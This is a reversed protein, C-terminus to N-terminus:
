NPTVFYGMGFVFGVITMVVAAIVDGLIIGLFFPRYQRYLKLGGAKVILGKLVWGIFFSFGFQNSTWSYMPVLGIPHLPWNVFRLRLFMLGFFMGAGLAAGVLNFMSPRQGPDLRAAAERWIRMAHGLFTGPALQAGGRDYVLRLWAVTALGAALVIAVAGWGFASRQRGGTDESLKQANMLSPMLTERIDYWFVNEVLATNVLTGPTFARSGLASVLLDSPRFQQQVMMLGANAAGWSAAVYKALGVVIVVLAMLPALGFQVFTAFLGILSLALGYVAIRYSFAEHSDDAGGARGRVKRWVEKLHPKSLILVMVGLALVAGYAEHCGFQHIDNGAGGLNAATLFVRQLVEFLRFFWMSFAIEQALLYAFGITAPFIHLRFSGIANWPRAHPLNQALEYHLDLQPVGPFYLHLGNIGHIVMPVAAGAWVLPHRFFANIVRGAEPSEAVVLPLQILAFSFREREVWQKRLLVALCACAFFLQAACTFWMVLSPRWAGWPIKGSAAGSYFTTAATASQPALFPKLHPWLQELWHNEPTAYYQLSTQAPLLYRLLGAAPIGSAIAIICWILGLEAPRFVWRPALKCLLPNVGLALLLVVVMAGVPFLNGAIYTNQLDYDNYPTLWALWGVAVLALIVARLTRVPSTTQSM